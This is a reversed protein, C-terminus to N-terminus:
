QEQEALTRWLYGGILDDAFPAALGVRLGLRAMAVAINAAGGPASGLGEAFLETGPPPLGPLGTFIMDMCIQGALFVGLADGDRRPRDGCPDALSPEPPGDVARVGNPMGTLAGGRRERRLGERGRPHSRRLRRAAPARALGLRRSSPARVGQ